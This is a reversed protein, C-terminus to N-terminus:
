RAREHCLVIPKYNESELKREGDRQQFEAMVSPACFPGAQLELAGDSREQWCQPSDVHRESLLGLLKASIESGLVVNRYRVPGSNWPTGCAEVHRVSIYSLPNPSPPNAVCAALAALVFTVALAKM